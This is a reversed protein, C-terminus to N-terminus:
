LSLDPKKIINLLYRLLNILYFTIALICYFCILTCASIYELQAALFNGVDTLQNNKTSSSHRIKGSQIVIKRSFAIDILM